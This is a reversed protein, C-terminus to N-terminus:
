QEGWKKADEVTKFIECDFFNNKMSDRYSKALNAHANQNIIIAIKFKGKTDSIIDDTSAYIKTHNTDILLSSVETFDNILYKIIPFRPHSQLEFNSM